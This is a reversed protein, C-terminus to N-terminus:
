GNKEILISALSDSRTLRRDVEKERSLVDDISRTSMGSLNRWDVKYKHKKITIPNEPDTNDILPATLDETFDDVKIPLWGRKEGSNFPWLTFDSRNHVTKSEIADWVADDYRFNGGYWFCDNSNNGFMAKKGGLIRRVVYLSVDMQDADEEESTALTVRTVQSGSRIFKFEHTAEFYDQSLTNAPILGNAGILPRYDCIIQAHVTKIQTDNKAVIIDGDEANAGDRVRILLDAM